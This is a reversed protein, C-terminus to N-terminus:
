FGQNVADGTRAPRPSALPAMSSPRPTPRQVAPVRAMRPLRAAKSLLACAIGLFMLHSWETMGQLTIATGMVMALIWTGGVLLAPVGGRRLYARALLVGISILVCATGLSGFKFMYTWYSNHLHPVSPNGAFDVIGIPLPM